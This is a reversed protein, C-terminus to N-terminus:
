LAVGDEDIGEYLEDMDDLDAVVITPDNILGLERIDTARIESAQVPWNSPRKTSMGTSM